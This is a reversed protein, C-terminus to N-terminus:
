RVGEVPLTVRVTTGKDPTSEVEIRGGHDAVVGYSTSLGLGTGAGVPRTTFFPDFIRPLDEAPIGCGDDTLEVVVSDGAARTRIEIQGRGRSTAEVAQIANILLDFFLQNIRAPACAVPPLQGFQRDVEIQGRDLRERVFELSNTIAEHIDMRDSETRDLRAFDRLKQVIDAARKVGRRTRGLLQEIGERAAAPDAEEGLGHIDRELIALNNSVFALPNNLEHAVGASLIGLSALKEAEVLRTQLRHRQTADRIAALLIVGESLELATLSLEMPFVEGGKRQGPLEVPQGAPPEDRSTLVRRWEEARSERDGPPVLLTLPQGLAEPESYGFVRRAAPNFLMIRDRPDAVVIADHTGETLQRYRRESARLAEEARKREAIEQELRENRRRVEAERLAALLNGRFQATLGAAVSSSILFFLAYTVYIQLPYAPGGAARGVPHTLFTYATVAAFGLAAALGTLFCLVPRLKLASLIIFFYYAHAAPAALAGYPGIFRNETLALVGVTPILAEAGINVAWVWDPLDSGRRLVRGVMALVLGEYAVAVSMLAVFRPLAVLQAHVGTILARTLVVLFVSALVFLLGLIRTRESQLAAKRFVANSADTPAM